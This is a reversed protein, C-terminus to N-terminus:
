ETRCTVQDWPTFLLREYIMIKNEERDKLAQKVRNLYEHYEVHRDPDSLSYLKTMDPYISRQVASILISPSKGTLIDRKVQRNWWLEGCNGMRTAVTQLTALNASLVHAHTHTHTYTCGVLYTALDVNNTSKKM